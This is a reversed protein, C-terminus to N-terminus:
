DRKERGSANSLASLALGILGGVLGFSLIVALCLVADNRSISGWHKLVKVAVFLVGALLGGVFGRRRFKPNL